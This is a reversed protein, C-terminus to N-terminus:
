SVVYSLHRHFEQGIGDNAVVLGAVTRCHPAKTALRSKEALRYVRNKLIPFKKRIIEGCIIGIHLRFRCKHELLAPCHLAVEKTGSSRQPMLPITKKLVEAEKADSHEAVM